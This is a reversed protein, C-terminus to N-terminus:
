SAHIALDRTDQALSMDSDAENIVDKIDPVTLIDRPLLGKTYDTAQFM